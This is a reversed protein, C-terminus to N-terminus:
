VAVPALARKRAKEDPSMADILTRWYRPPTSPQGTFVFGDDTWKVKAREIGDFGLEKRVNLMNRCFTKGEPSYGRKHNKWTGYCNNLVEEAMYHVYFIRRINQTKNGISGHPASLSHFLVDGPEMIMPVAGFNNFLEEQSFRKLDIHGVLHHGPIGWVCGNEKTSHDLYIDVDFNPVEFTEEFTPSGYPPDQHWTIPVNGGPLKCVFSDNVPLFPHGTCQGICELLEPKVTVAQFIPDRDWMRESRFYVNGVGPVDTYLHDKGKRAVGEEQVRTAAARLEELERGQFMGKLVLFGDRHYQEIQARTLM